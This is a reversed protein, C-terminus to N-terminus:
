NGSVGSVKGVERKRSINRKGKFGGLFFMRLSIFRESKFDFFSLQLSERGRRFSRCFFAYNDFPM